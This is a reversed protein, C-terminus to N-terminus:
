GIVKPERCVLDEGLGWRDLHDPLGMLGTRAETAKRDLSDV